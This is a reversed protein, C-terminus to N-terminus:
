NWPPCIPSQSLSSAHCLYTSQSGTWSNQAMPRVGRMKDTQGVWFWGCPLGAQGLGQQVQAIASVVGDRHEQVDGLASAVHALEDVRGEPVDVVSTPGQAPQSKISPHPRLGTRVQRVESFETQAGLAARVQFGITSQIFSCISSCYSDRGFRTNQM